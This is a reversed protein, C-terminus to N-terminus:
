ACKAGQASTFFRKRRAKDHDDLNEIVGLLVQARANTKILSLLAPQAFVKEICQAGFNFGQGQQCTDM